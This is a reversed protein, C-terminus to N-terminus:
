RRILIAALHLAALYGYASGIPRKSLSRPLAYDAVDVIEFTAEERGAAIGDVWDAM